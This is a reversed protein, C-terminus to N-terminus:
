PKVKKDLYKSLRKNFDDIFIISKSILESIFIYSKDDDTINCNAIEEFTLYKEESYDHVISNRYKKAKDVIPYEALEKLSFNFKSSFFKNLGKFSTGINELEKKVLIDKLLDISDIKKLENFKLIKDDSIISMDCAFIEVICEKLFTEIRSFLNIITSNNIFEIYKDNGIQVKGARLFKIITTEDPIELPIWEASNLAKNGSDEFRKWQEMEKKSIKPVNKIYEQRIGGRNQYTWDYYDKLLQMDYIFQILLLGIKGKLTQYDPKM